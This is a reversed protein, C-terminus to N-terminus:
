HINAPRSSILPSIVARKLLFGNADLVLLKTPLGVSSLVVQKRSKLMAQIIVLIEKCEARSLLDADDLLLIDADHLCRLDTPPTRCEVLFIKTNPRIEVAQRYIARLLHTKGADHDGYIFLPNFGMGPAGAVAYADAVALANPPSVVFSEFSQGHRLTSPTICPITPNMTPAPKLILRRM